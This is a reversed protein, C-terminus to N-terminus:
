ETNCFMLGVAEDRVVHPGGLDAKVLTERGPVPLVAWLSGLLLLTAHALLVTTHPVERVAPSFACM